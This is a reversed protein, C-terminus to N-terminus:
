EGKDRGRGQVRRGVLTFELVNPHSRFLFMASAQSALGPSSSIQIDRQSQSSRREVRIPSFAVPHLRSHLQEHRFSSPSYRSFSQSHRLYLRRIRSYTQRDGFSRSRCQRRGPRLGPTSSPFPPQAISPDAGRGTASKARCPM